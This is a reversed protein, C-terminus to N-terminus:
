LFGFGNIGSEPPGSLMLKLQWASRRIQIRALVLVLFVMMAKGFKREGMFLSASSTVKKAALSGIVTIGLLYFVIVSWDTVSIGLM